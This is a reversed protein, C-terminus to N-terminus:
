ERADDPEVSVSFTGDARLTVNLAVVSSTDGNRTSRDLIESTDLIRETGYPARALVTYSDPEATVNELIREGEGPVSVTRWYAVADETSVVIDFPQADPLFNYFRVRRIRVTETTEQLRSCGALSAIAGAGLGCVFRRREM